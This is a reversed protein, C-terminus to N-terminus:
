VNIIVNVDDDEEDEEEDQANKVDEIKAQSLMECISGVQDIDEPKEELLHLVM